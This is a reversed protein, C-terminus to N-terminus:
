WLLKNRMEELQKPTKWALDISHEHIETPKWELIQKRDFNIKAVDTLAKVDRSEMQLPNVTNLYENTLKTVKNIISDIAEIIHWHSDYTTKITEPVKDIISKVTDRKVWTEKEIDRLSKQPDKLKAKIVKIKDESRTKKWKAM